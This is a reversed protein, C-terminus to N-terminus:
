MTLHTETHKVPSCLLRVRPDETLVLPLTRNHDVRLHFYHIQSFPLFYSIPFPGKEDHYGAWFQAPSTTTVATM